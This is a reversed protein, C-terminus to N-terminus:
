HAPTRRGTIFKTWVLWSWTGRRIALRRCMCRRESEEGSLSLMLPSLINGSSSEEACTLLSSNAGVSVPDASDETAPGAHEMSSSIPSADLSLLLLVLGSALLAQPRKGVMAPRPTCLQGQLLLIVEAECDDECCNILYICNSLWLMPYGQVFLVVLCCAFISTSHYLYRWM